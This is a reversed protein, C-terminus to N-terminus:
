LAMLNSIREVDGSLTQLKTKLFSDSMTAMGRIDPSLSPLEAFQKELAAILLCSDFKDGIHLCSRVNVGAVIDGAIIDMVVFFKLTLTILKNQNLTPYPNLNPNHIPNAKANTMNTTADISINYVPM